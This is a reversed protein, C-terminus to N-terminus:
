KRAVAVLEQTSSELPARDFGGYFSWEAFGAVEFLLEFQRRPVLALPTEVEALTEGDQRVRKRYSAVLEVPDELDTRSEVTYTEGDVTVDSGDWEAYHEAVFTPDPVFTNLAFRGGPALADHVRRTATRQAELTALHNFARAPCYILGYERDTDLATVDGVGVSADLGERDAKERLRALMGASVDVGDVDLGDRLLELYVRGTGVGVELAPGDATEALARYFAVDDGAWGGAADEVGELLADYTEATRDFFEAADDM